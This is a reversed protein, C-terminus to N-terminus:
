QNSKQFANLTYLSKVVGHYKSTWKIGRGSEDAIQYLMDSVHITLNQNM